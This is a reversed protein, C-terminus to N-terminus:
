YGTQPAALLSTGSLHQPVAEGLLDIVTPVVGFPSRVGRDGPAIGPGRVYAM